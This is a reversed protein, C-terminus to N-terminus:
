KTIINNKDLFEYLNGVIIDYWNSNPHIMDDLNYEEKGAVWDLFFEFFEVKDKKDAVDKYVEKFDNRYSLGLNLPVDMWWLIVKVWSEEYIDIIKLINEELKTTPLWRLWDNWGIVLIVLEPKTDLYLQARSLLWDSTDWSIWANIVEYNYWNEQLKKQLKSPYSEEEQLWYWATLSDWLAVIKKNRIEMNPNKEVVIETTQSCSVLFLLLIFLIIKKM